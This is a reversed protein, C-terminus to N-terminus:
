PTVLGAAMSAIRFCVAVSRPGAPAVFSYPVPEDVRARRQAAHPQGLSRARIARRAAHIATTVQAAVIASAGGSASACACGAGGAGGARRRRDAHAAEEFRASARERRGLAELRHQARAGARNEARAALHEEAAVQEDREAHRAELAVTFADDHELVLRERDADVGVTETTGISSDAPQRKAL